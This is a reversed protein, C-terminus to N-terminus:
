KQTPKLIVGPIDLHEADALTENIWTEIVRANLVNGTNRMQMIESVRTQFAMRDAMEHEGICAARNHLNGTKQHLGVDTTHGERGDGIVQASKTPSKHKNPVM